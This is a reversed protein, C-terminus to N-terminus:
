HNGQHIVRTTILSFASWDLCFWSAIFVNCSAGIPTIIIRIFIRQRLLCKSVASLYGAPLRRHSGICVLLLPRSFNSAKLHAADYGTPLSAASREGGTWVSQGDARDAVVVANRYTRNVSPLNWCRPRLNQFGRQLGPLDM